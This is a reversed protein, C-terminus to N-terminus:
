NKIIKSTNKQINLDNPRFVILQSLTSIRQPKEVKAREVNDVTIDFCFFRSNGRGKM